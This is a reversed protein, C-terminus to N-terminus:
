QGNVIWSLPYEHCRRHDATAWNFVDEPSTNEPDSFQSPRLGNMIRAVYESCTMTSTNDPNRHIAMKAFDGLKEYAIWEGGDTAIDYADYTRKNSGVGYMPEIYVEVVRARKKGNRALWSGMESKVLGYPAGLMEIVGCKKPLNEYLPAERRSTPTVLAVHSPGFQGKITSKFDTFLRILKGVLTREEVFLLTIM